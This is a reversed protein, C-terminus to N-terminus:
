DGDVPYLRDLSLEYVLRRERKMAARYEDLDEPPAGTIREYLRANEDGTPDEVLRVRGEVVLYPRFEPTLVCLAARPDRQLNRTKARTWTSSIRIKGDMVAYVIPSLQPLGNARITALVGRHHEELFRLGESRTM